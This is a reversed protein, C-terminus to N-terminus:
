DALFESVSDPVRGKDHFIDESRAQLVNSFEQADIGNQLQQGHDAFIDAYTEARGL